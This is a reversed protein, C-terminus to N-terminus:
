GITGFYGSAPQQDAGLAGQGTGIQGQLRQIVAAVRSMDLPKFPMMQPNGAAQQTTQIVSALANQQAKAADKDDQTEALTNSKSGVLNNDLFQGAGPVGAASAISGFFGQSQPQSASAVASSSDTPAVPVPVPPTPGTTSGMFAATAHDMDDGPNNRGPGGNFTPEPGNFATGRTMGAPEVHWNENSLPFHLGFTSANDHAWKAAADNGHYDLDGALGKEHNSHGPPAAWSRAADPGRKAVTDAYIQAQEAKTRGASLLGIDYGQALGAERLAALRNQFVPDLMDVHETGKTRASNLYDQPTIGARQGTDITNDPAIAQRSGGLVGSYTPDQYFVHEGIKATQPYDKAWQPVNRGLASQASPSFFHTAGNTNDPAQGGYVSDLIAGAAKYEQSNPDATYAASGKHMWPEFQNKQLSVGAASDAFGAQQRNRIVNAVAALGEPGQNGAEGLMTRIAIDRDHPSLNLASPGSGGFLFPAIDESDSGLAM